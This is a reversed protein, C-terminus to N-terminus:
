LDAASHHVLEEWKEASPPPPQAPRLPAPLTASMAGSGVPSAGGTVRSVVAPVQRHEVRNAVRPQREAAIHVENAAGAGALPDPM